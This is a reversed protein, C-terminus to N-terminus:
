AMETRSRAHLVARAPLSRADEAPASCGSRRRAGARSRCAAGALCVFRLFRDNPGGNASGCRDVRCQSRCQRKRRSAVSAARDGSKIPQESVIGTFAALEMRCLNIRMIGQTSRRMSLHSKTPEQESSCEIACSLAQAARHDFRGSAPGQEAGSRSQQEAVIGVIRPM